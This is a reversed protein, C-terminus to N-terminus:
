FLLFDLKRAKTSYTFRELQQAMLLCVVGTKEDGEFKKEALTLAIVLGYLLRIKHRRSNNHRLSLM